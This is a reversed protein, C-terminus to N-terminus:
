FYVGYAASLHRSMNILKETTWVDAQHESKALNLGPSYAKGLNESLEILKATNWDQNNNTVNSNISM